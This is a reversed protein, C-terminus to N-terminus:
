QKDLPLEAVFHFWGDEYNFTYEANYQDLVHRIIMLGYGHDQKPIKSTSISNGVITVPLSTNSIAIFLLGDDNLVSCDIVSATDLRLCAEIANDLLNSLLVVLADINFEVSSLDNVQIQVDIQKETAIQYKHNLIADIIPHHSNVALIRTTQTEQLSSVYKRAIPIENSCMLDSITQLHHQFEHVTKRQARYNRELALISETQIAMQQKMLAAERATRESSALMNILYLSALNAIVLVFTFLFASLSLDNKDAYSNFLILLMIYSVIPFLLSLLTWKHQTQTLDHNKRFQKVLWAFLIAFLKGLTVVVSYSLIRWIFDSLSIQLISCTGYLVAVDFMSGMIMAFLIAILHHWSHGHYLNKASILHLILAIITRLISNSVFHTYILSIALLGLFSYLYKQLTVKRPFFASWFLHFFSLELTQWVASLLYEM